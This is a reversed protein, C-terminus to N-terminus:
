GDATVGIVIMFVIPVLFCLTIKNRISFLMSSKKKKKAKIDKVVVEKIQKAEQIKKTSKVPKTEKAKKEKEKILGPENVKKGM